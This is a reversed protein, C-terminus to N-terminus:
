SPSFFLQIVSTGESCFYGTVTCFRCSQSNWGFHVWLGVHNGWSSVKYPTKQSLEQQQQKTPEESWYGKSIESRVNKSDFLSFFCSSSAPPLVNGGPWHWILLWLERRQDNREWQQFLCWCGTFCCHWVGLTVAVAASLLSPSMEELAEIGWSSLDQKGIPNLPWCWQKKYACIAQVLTHWSSWFSCAKILKPKFWTLWGLHRLCARCSRLVTVGTQHPSNWVGVVWATPVLGCFAMSIHRASGTCWQLTSVRPAHSSKAFSPLMAIGLAASGTSAEFCLLFVAVPHQVGAVWGQWVPGLVQLALGSTQLVAFSDGLSWLRASNAFQM